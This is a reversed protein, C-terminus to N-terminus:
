DAGRGGPRVSPETATRHLTVASRGSLSVVTLCGTLWSAGVTETTSATAHRLTAHRHCRHCCHCCHPLAPLAPLPPQPPQPPQARAGHGSFGNALILNPLEPHSGILANQDITNYEYLGAWSSHVKIEGFAEVREYLAPWISGIHHPHTRGAGDTHQPSCPHSIPSPVLCTRVLLVMPVLHLTLPRCSSATHTRRGRAAAMAQALQTRHGCASTTPPLWPADAAHPPRTYHARTTPAHPPHTHHTRATPAHPPRTRHTRATCWSEFLKEYDADTVGFAATDDLADCDDTADPSVGALFTDTTGRGEPRFYVGSGDVTLPAKCLPTAPPSSPLTAAAPCRFFFICRKRPRVPLETVHRPYDSALLTLVDHAHAGAANVVTRPSLTVAAPESATTGAGTPASSTCAATAAIAVSTIRGSSADVTAAHPQGDVYSVGLAQAKRRMGNLLAWPDFWGENQTGLSGALVGDTQLWPFRQGLEAPSLVQMWYCGAAKQTAHNRLLTEHGAPTTALFLYGHEQFQVDIDDDDDGLTLLKAANKLFEVGYLSMDINERLSFQQRIGGASLMASAKRYSKDREVVVIGEGTGRMAALHYAISSGVVGGGIILTDM